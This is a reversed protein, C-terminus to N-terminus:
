APESVRAGELALMAQKRAGGWRYGSVDGASRLVRHCPILLAVPNQGIATGVARAARPHGISRAVAAYTTVSGEPLALLAEWVKIQFNTGRLHLHLPGGTTLGTFAHEVFSGTGAQDEIWTANPWEDKLARLEGARGADGVFRLACIGRATAALLCEGFPSPHFGYRIALGAGARRVDGPTVAECEVLLEHLRGSGTLGADLAADLVNASQRLRRKADEKTLFQLFRKPSIGAWRRFLRQFHYESLHVSRAVEALEPQRRRNAEVFRIAREVRAYDRSQRELAQHPNARTVM